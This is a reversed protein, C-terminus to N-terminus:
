IRKQKIMVTVQRALSVASLSFEPKLKILAPLPGGPQLGAGHHASSNIPSLQKEFREGSQSKRGVERM